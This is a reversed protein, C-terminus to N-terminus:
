RTHQRAEGAKRSYLWHATPVEGGGFDRRLFRDNDDALGEPLRFESRRRIHDTSGDPDSVPGVANDAYHRVREPRRLNAGIRTLQPEREIEHIIFQAVTEDAPKTLSHGDGACRAIQIRDRRARPYILRRAGLWEGGGNGRGTLRDVEVLRELHERGGDHEHQQHSRRVDRM